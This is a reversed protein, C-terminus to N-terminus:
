LDASTLTYDTGRPPVGCLEVRGTPASWKHKPSSGPLVQVTDLFSFTLALFILM